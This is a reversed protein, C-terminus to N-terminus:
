AHSWRERRVIRGVVRQSVGFAAALARQSMGGASMARMKVVGDDTLKARPQTTGRTQRQKACKDAMNDAHTGLFLHDPNCCAPVDCRHCVHMGGEIPGVFAEYALRHALLRRGRRSLHGYGKRSISGDWLWCGSWPVQHVRDMIYAQDDGALSPAGRVTM